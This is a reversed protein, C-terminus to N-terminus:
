ANWNIFHTTRISIASLAMAFDDYRYIGPLSGKFIECINSTPFSGLKEEPWQNCNNKHFNGNIQNRTYLFLIWPLSELFLKSMKFLTMVGLILKAILKTRTIILRTTKNRFLFIESSSALLVKWSALLLALFKAITKTAHAWNSNDKPQDAIQKKWWGQLVRCYTSDKIWAVCVTSSTRYEDLSM